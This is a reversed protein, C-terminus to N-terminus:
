ARHRAARREAAPDAAGQLVVVEGDVGGGGGKDEWRDEERASVGRHREDRGQRGVGDAIDRPGDAGEDEAVPAVAVAALVDEDERQQQHSDRRESDAEEGRVALDAQEGRDKEHRQAEDLAEGHRALQATRAREDGLMGGCPAAAEVRAEAKLARLSAANQGGCGEDREGRHQGGRSEMGPAPAHGEQEAGEDDDGAVENTAADGLRRHEKPLGLLM